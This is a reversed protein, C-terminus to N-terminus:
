QDIQVQSFSNEPGNPPAWSADDPALTIAQWKHEPPIAFQINNIINHHPYGGHVNFDVTSYINAFTNHASSWQLTIHRIDKVFLDKLVCKFARAVRLYGSGKKGKNWAGVITVGKATNAYSNEFVLSHNGAQLLSVNEITIFATWICRLLDVRYEPFLNEYRFRVNEIDANPVSQILTLDRVTVHQVLEPRILQTSQASYDIDLTRDLYFLNANHKDVVHFMSQRIIPSKERWRLSGISDFFAEDNAQRLLLIDGARLMKKADDFEIVSNGAGADTQLFGLKKGFRGHIHLVAEDPSKVMSQLITREQGSGELTINSRDIVLPHMLDLKGQPLRIVTGDVVERILTNLAVSDDRGDDPQVGYDRADLFDHDQKGAAAAQLAYVDPLRIVQETVLLTFFFLGYSVFMLYRPMYRALVHPIPIKDQTADQMVGGKSWKQDSLFFYARIKIVAGVWQNFLMLPITILSVPHGNLAIVLMQITRVILVWAIFIPFYVLNKFISLILTGTIGVLSTWMSIRQDLICFWIFVGTKKWGLALARGNNRLTNGYWRYPLSTSLDLFSADRSELSYCIADPVYLMEWGDRLLYFWSSKDDGMLFRFKGHLSHLLIDNELFRIFEERVVIETRFISFRGTLTLVKHSLSHSQFLIHRQGFKLNFWDKYWQSTTNIYALENTTVAGLNKKLFFLPITKALIGPELYSDGDMFVTVSNADNIRKDNYRRAVARLAHGMAIRKGQSQRQLVLEVKESAPHARYAESIVADDRDSGTAVILSASCPIGNLESLISFFTEVSVWPEENYSPIIFFIHEPFCGQRAAHHAQKRLRPYVFLGYLLARCYHTAQWSYRWAAFLGITILTENKVYYFYPWSSLGIAFAIALYFVAPGIVSLAGEKRGFRKLM